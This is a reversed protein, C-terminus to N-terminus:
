SFGLNQSSISLTLGGSPITLRLTSSFCVELWVSANARRVRRQNLFDFYYRYRDKYALNNQGLSFGSAPQAEIIWAVGQGHITM